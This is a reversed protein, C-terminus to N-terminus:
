NAQNKDILTMADKRELVHDMGLVISGQFSTGANAALIYPKGQIAGPPTLFSTIGTVPKENLLYSACWDSYRLWVHAVELAAIGPWKRSPVGRPITWGAAVIQELGVERTDGQAITNTALLGCQGSFHVLQSARLFFYACLDASGRKGNALYEVLYDRYDTGLAGTIKQGGQFPPNSVIAAFGREEELGGVFVEPFELPWHFPRRGKLLENIEDRMADFDQRLKEWHAETFKERRADESAGVLVTYRVHITGDLLERRKADSL